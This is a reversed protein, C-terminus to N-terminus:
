ALSTNSNLKMEELQEKLYLELKKASLLRRVLVGKWVQERQEPAFQAFASSILCNNLVVYTVLEEFHFMLKNIIRQTNRSIMKNKEMYDKGRAGNKLSLL